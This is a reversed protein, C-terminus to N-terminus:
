HTDGNIESSLSIRFTQAREAGRFRLDLHGKQVRGVPFFLSLLARSNAPILLAGPEDLSHESVSKLDRRRLSWYRSLHGRHLFPDMADATTEVMVGDGDEVYLVMVCPQLPERARGVIGRATAVTFRATSLDCVLDRQSENAIVTDICTVRVSWGAAGTHLAVLDTRLTKGAIDTFPERNPFYAPRADSTDTGKDKVTGMPDLLALETPELRHTPEIGDVSGMLLMSFPLCGTSCLVILAVLAISKMRPANGGSLLRQPFRGGGPLWTKNLPSMTAERRLFVGMAIWEDRDLPVNMGFGVLGAEM